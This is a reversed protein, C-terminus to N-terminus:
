HHYQLNRQGRTVGNVREVSTERTVMIKRKNGTEGLYKHHNLRHKRRIAGQRHLGSGSTDTGSPSNSMSSVTTTQPQASTDCVALMVVLLLCLMGM